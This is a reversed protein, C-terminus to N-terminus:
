RTPRPNLRQGSAAILDRLWYITAAVFPAVLWVETTTVPPSIRTADQRHQLIAITDGVAIVTFTAALAVVIVWLLYGFRRPQYWAVTAVFVGIVAAVISLWGVTGFIANPDSATVDVVGGADIVVSPRLWGWAVGGAVGSCLGALLLGAANGLSSPIRPMPNLKQVGEM